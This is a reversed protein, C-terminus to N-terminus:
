RVPRRFFRSMIVAGAVAGALAMFGIYSLQDPLDNTVPWGNAVHTGPTWLWTGIGGIMAGLLAGVIMAIPNTRTNDPGTTYRTIVFPRINMLRIMMLKRLRRITTDQKDIRAQLTAITATMQAIRAELVGRKEDARTRDAVRGRELDEVRQTLVAITGVPNTRTCKKQEPPEVETTMTTVIPQVPTCSPRHTALFAFLGFLGLAAVGLVMALAIV